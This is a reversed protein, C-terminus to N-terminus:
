SRSDEYGSGTAKCSITGIENKDQSIIEALIVEATLAALVVLAGIQIAKSSFPHTKRM